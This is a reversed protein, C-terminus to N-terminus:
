SGHTILRARLRAPAITRKSVLVADFSLSITWSLWKTSVSHALAPGTECNRQELQHIIFCVSSHVQLGLPLEDATYMISGQM